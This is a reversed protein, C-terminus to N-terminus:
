WSFFYQWHFCFLEWLWWLVSPFSWDRLLCRGPFSHASIPQRYL